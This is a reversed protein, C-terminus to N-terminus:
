HWASPWFLRLIALNDRNVSPLILASCSIGLLADSAGRCFDFHHPGFLFPAAIVKDEHAQYNGAQNECGVPFDLYGLCGDILVGQFWHRKYRLCESSASQSGIRERSELDALTAKDGNPQLLPPHLNDSARGPHMRSCGTSHGISCWTLKAQM